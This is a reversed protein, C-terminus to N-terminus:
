FVGDSEDVKLVHCPLEIGFVPRGDRGGCRAARGIRPDHSPKQGRGPSGAVAPSPRFLDVWSEAAALRPERPRQHQLHDKKHFLLAHSNQSNQSIICTRNTTANQKCHHAAAPLLLAFSYGCVEQVDQATKKEKPSSTPRVRVKWLPQVPSTASTKLEM